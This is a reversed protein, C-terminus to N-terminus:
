VNKEVNVHNIARRPKRAAQMSIVPGQRTERRIRDEYCERCESGYEARRGCGCNM